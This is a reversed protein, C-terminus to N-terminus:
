RIPAHQSHFQGSLLKKGEPISSSIVEAHEPYIWNQDNPGHIMVGTFFAYEYESPKALNGLLRKTDNLIIQSTVRTLSELTVRDGFHLNSLIKQRVCSLELDDFDMHVDIRGSNLQSAISHLAGCAYSVEAIGERSVSGVHGHASIAIHPMGYFVFRRKGDVLPAHSIATKIGSKGLLLFGGLSRCSFTRGWHQITSAELPSAIEDRCTAVMGLTNEDCFGYPELLNATYEFYRDMPWSGSFPSLNLQGPNEFSAPNKNQSTM